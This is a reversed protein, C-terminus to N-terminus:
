LGYGLDIELGRDISRELTAAFTKDTPLERSIGLESWRERLGQELASGPEVTRALEM